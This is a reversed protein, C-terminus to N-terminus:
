FVRWFWNRNTDFFRRKKWKEFLNESWIAESNHFIFKLVRQLYRSCEALMLSHTQLFIITTRSTSIFIDFSVYFFRKFFPQKCLVTTRYRNSRIGCFNGCKQFSLIKSFRGPTAPPTRFSWFNIQSSIRLDNSMKRYNWKTWIVIKQIKIEFVLEATKKSVARYSDVKSTQRHQLTRLEFKM